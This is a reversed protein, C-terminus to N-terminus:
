DSDTPHILAWIEQIALAAQQFCWYPSLNATLGYKKKFGYNGFQNDVIINNNQTRKKKGLVFSGFM